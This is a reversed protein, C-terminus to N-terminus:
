KIATCGEEGVVPLTHGDWDNLFGVADLVYNFCFRFSYGSENLGCCVGTTFMFRHIGCYGVNPIFRIDHYGNQDWLEMMDGQVRRAWNGVIYDEICREDSIMDSRGAAEMKMCWYNFYEELVDAESLTIVGDFIRKEIEIPTAFQIYSKSRDIVAM